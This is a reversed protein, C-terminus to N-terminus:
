VSSAAATRYPGGGDATAAVEALEVSVVEEDQRAFQFFLPTPRGPRRLERRRSPRHDLRLDRLTGAVRKSANPHHGPAPEHPLLRLHERARRHPRPGQPPTGRRGAHRRDLRRLQTGRLGAARPRCPVQRHPPGARPTRWATPGPDPQPQDPRLWPADITLCVVGLPALAQAEELYTTRNGQGHHVFVVGAFRGSAPAGRDTAPDPVILYAPVRDERAYADLSQRPVGAAAGLSLPLHPSYLRSRQPRRSWSEISLRQRPLNM